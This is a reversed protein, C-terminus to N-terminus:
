GTLWIGNPIGLLVSAALAYISIWGTASPASGAAAILPGIILLDLCPKYFWGAVFLVTITIGAMATWGDDRQFRGSLAFFRSRTLPLGPGPTV